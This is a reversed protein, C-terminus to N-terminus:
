YTGKWLRMLRVKLFRNWQKWFREQIRKIRMLYGLQNMFIRESSFTYWMMACVFEDGKRELDPLLIHDEWKKKRIQFVTNRDVSLDLTPPALSKRIFDEM